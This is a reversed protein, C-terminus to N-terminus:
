GPLGAKRMGDFAHEADAAKKYVLQEKFFHFAPQLPRIEQALAVRFRGLGM